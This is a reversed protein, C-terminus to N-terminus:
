FILIEVESKPFCDHVPLNRAITVSPTTWLTYLITVQDDILTISHCLTAYSDEITTLPCPCKVLHRYGCIVSGITHVVQICHPSRPLLEVASSWRYGGSLGGTNYFPCLLCIFYCIFTIDWKCLYQFYM